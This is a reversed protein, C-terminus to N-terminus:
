RTRQCGKKRLLSNLDENIMSSDDDSRPGGLGALAKGGNAAQPQNNPRRRFRYSRFLVSVDSQDDRDDNKWDGNLNNLRSLFEHLIPKM